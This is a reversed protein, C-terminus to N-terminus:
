APPNHLITHTRGRTFASGAGRGCGLKWDEHRPMTRM